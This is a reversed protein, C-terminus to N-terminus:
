ELNWSNRHLGTDSYTIELSFELKKGNVNKQSVLVESVGTVGSMSTVGQINVVWCTHIHKMMEFQRCLKREMLIAPIFLTEYLPLCVIKDYRRVSSIDVHSLQLQYRIVGARVTMESAPAVRKM